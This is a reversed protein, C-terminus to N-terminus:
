KRVNFEACQEILWLADKLKERASVAGGASPDAPPELENAVVLDIIVELPNPGPIIDPTTVDNDHDFPTNDDGHDYTYKGNLRGSTLMMDLKRIFETDRAFEDGFAGEPYLGRGGGSVPTLWDLYPMQTNDINPHILGGSLYPGYFAGIRNQGFMLSTGPQGNPLNRVFNEMYNINQIATTENVLQMEPAVLGALAIDNPAYDPLYFNFVTEQNFPSITLSDAGTFTTSDFRFFSDIELNAAQSAPYGYNTFEAEDPYDPDSVDIPPFGPSARDEVQMQTYGELTRILKFEAELASLKKGFGDLLVNAPNRAEPHLLITKIAAALDGEGGAVDPTGDFDRDFGDKFAKAVHYLYDPTPNSTVFRQILRRAVFAPTSGHSSAPDGPAQTFDAATSGDLVGAFWDLADDVDKISRDTNSLGLGTNNITKGGAIDFPDVLGTRHDVTTDHFAEFMKMRRNHSWSIYQTGGGASREFQTNEVPNPWNDAESQAGGPTGDPDFVHNGYSHGTLIRAMEVIHNNDYTPIPLGNAESLVLDGNLHLDFLGITFLQMVERALNEDPSYLIVDDSPDGPTNNPDAYATKENKMSSLWIGMGPAWVVWDIVDRYKGFAHANLMDQYNAAGYHYLSIEGPASDAIVNIQQLAYGMKQRLQDKANILLNYNARRRNLHEPHHLNNYAPIYGALIQDPTLPYPGSPIWLEPDPNTRDIFPYTGPEVPTPVLRGKYLIPPFWAPDYFGRLKFEAFDAAINFDLLWTQELAMQTDIWNEFEEIRSYTPNGGTREAEIAAVMSDAEAKKGGFTAQDLFRWVERELDDGTLVALPYGVDGASPPTPADISGSAPALFAWIEGDQNDVTHINLYMKDPEGNQAFLRDIQNQNTLGGGPQIMWSYGGLEGLFIGSDTDGPINTIEFVIPGASNGPGGKHVHSDTQGTTLNNFQNWLLMEDKHGNLKGSVFGNGVTPVVALGDQSFSGVFLIEQEPIDKADYISCDASAGAGPDYDDTDQIECRVIEPYEHLLIPPNAPPPDVYDVIAEIVIQASVQGFGLTITGGLPNGDVDLADYDAPEASEDPLAVGVFDYDVVLQQLSGTRQVRFRAVDPEADAPDIEDIVEQGTRNDETAVADVASIEVTQTGGGFGLAASVTAYDGSGSTTSRPDFPSFNGEGSMETEAWDTIGDGDQDLDKVLARVFKPSSGDLGSATGPNSVWPCLYDGEILNLGPPFGGDPVDWAVSCHDENTGHVHLVEVYYKEGATLNIIGSQQSAYRDWQQPQIANSSEGPGGAFAIKVKNAPDDDTSLWLESDHRSAIAFTYAGTVPPKIFGRIRGGYNDDTNAPIELDSLARVGPYAASGTVATAVRFGVLSSFSTPPGTELRFTSRMATHDLDWVGGRRGRADAPDDNVLDGASEEWEWANGGQGYTGYPSPLGVDDVDNPITSHFGDDVVVDFETDGDFDIGDPITDTGTQYDYYVESVPDYHAAKYWEDYSPLFYRADKHRFLNQGGEQWAEAPSWLQFNGGGDFNYAAQFGQSTNLWNVFKAVEFWTVLTAPKTPGRNNTTIALGGEANAKNIMDESVEFKAIQYGYPVSGAPNPKGTTDDANGPNGIDVFEITFQNAGSGFTASPPGLPFDGGGTLSAVDTGGIGPYIEQAISGTLDTASTGSLHVTVDGGTGHVETGEDDWSTLDDGIQFRYKKGRKTPFTLTASNGDVIVGGVSFVDLAGGPDGSPMPDTGAISEELNTKGDGDDDDGPLVAQANFREEWVDDMDDADLDVIARANMTLALFAALALPLLCVRHFNRISLVIQSDPHKM